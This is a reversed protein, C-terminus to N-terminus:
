RVTITAEMYPHYTCLYDFTGPTDFTLTASQGKDLRGTDWADGRDTATHPASDRNLWTVATGARVTLDRPFYDFDRIEVLVEREKSAVPTQPALDGRGMMGRMMEGHSMGMFIGMMVMGSILAIGIAFALAIALILEAEGGQSHWQPRLRERM